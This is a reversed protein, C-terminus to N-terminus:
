ATEEKFYLQTPKTITYQAEWTVDPPCVTSGEVKSFVAKGHYTGVGSMTAGTLLGAPTGPSEAAGYACSGFVSNVTVQTNKIRMEAVTNTSKIYEITMRGLITATTKNTCETFAMETVEVKVAVGKGGTNETRGKIKSDGCTTLPTGGTSKIVSSSVQSMEIETNFEYDEGAPCPIKNETCLVTASASGAGLMAMLAMAAMAALGLTKLYKM